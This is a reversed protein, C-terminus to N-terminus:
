LDGRALRNERLVKSRIGITGTSQGRVPARFLDVLFECEPALQAFTSICNHPECGLLDGPLRVGCLNVVLRLQHVLMAPLRDTAFDHQHLFEDVLVDDFECLCKLRVCVDVHNHLVHLAFGQM